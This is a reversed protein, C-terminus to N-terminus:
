QHAAYFWPASHEPYIRSRDASVKQYQAWCKEAFGCLRPNNLVEDVDCQLAWDEMKKQKKLFSDSLKANPDINKAVGIVVSTIGLEVISKDVICKM